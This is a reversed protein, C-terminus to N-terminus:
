SWNEKVCKQCRTVFSIYHLQVQCVNTGIYVFTVFSAWCKDDEQSNRNKDPICTYVDFIIKWEKINAFNM